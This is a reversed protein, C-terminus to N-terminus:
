DAKLNTEIGKTNKNTQIKETQILKSVKNMLDTITKKAIAMKRKTFQAAQSNQQTAIRKCGVNTNSGLCDKDGRQGKVGPCRPQVKSYVPQNKQTKNMTFRTWKHGNGLMRVGTRNKKINNM